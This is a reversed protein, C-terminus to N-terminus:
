EESPRCRLTDRVSFLTRILAETNKVPMEALIEQTLDDINCRHPKADLCALWQLPPVRNCTPAAAEAQAGFLMAAAIGGLVIYRNITM